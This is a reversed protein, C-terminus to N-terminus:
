QWTQGKWGCPMMCGHTEINAPSDGEVYWKTGTLLTFKGQHRQFDLDYSFLQPSCTTTHTTPNECCCSNDYRTCVGWLGSTFMLCFTLPGEDMGVCWEVLTLFTTCKGLKAQFDLYHRLPEPTCHCSINHNCNYIIPKLGPGYGCLVNQLWSIYHTFMYGDWCMVKISQYPHISGDRVSFWPWTQAVRPWLPM